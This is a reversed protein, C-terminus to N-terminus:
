TGDRGLQCGLSENPFVTSGHTNRPRVAPKELSSSDASASEAGPLDVLM